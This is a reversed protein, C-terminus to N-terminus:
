KRLAIDGLIYVQEVVTVTDTAADVSRASQVGVCAFQTGPAEDLDQVAANTLPSAIGVLKPVTVGGITVTGSYVPDPCWGIPLVTGAVPTEFDVTTPALATTGPTWPVTWVFDAVFQATSQQDAPKLFRASSPANRLTYPILACADASSANDLRRVQVQPETTGAPRLVTASGCALTGDVPDVLELLSARQPLAAPPPTATPVAGDAGGELSFSGALADLSLTDFSIGDSPGTWSPASIAWRCNDSVGSDPGSDAPMNCTAVAYPKAELVSPRAAGISAGSQLEFYGVVAGALRATALIRASQKLEVDLFASSAFLPGLDGRVTSPNVGLVLREGPAGVQGCSTGSKKEAVGLSNSLFSALDGAQGPASGTLTLLREGAVTTSPSVSLRCGSGEFLAESDVVTAAAPNAATPTYRTLSVRDASGTELALHGVPVGPAAAPRLTAEPGSGDAVTSAVLAAPALGLALALTATLATIPTTRRIRM